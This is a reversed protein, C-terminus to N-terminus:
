CSVFMKPNVIADLSESRQTEFSTKRLSSPFRWGYMPFRWGYMARDPNFYFYLAIRARDGANWKQKDNFTDWMGFLGAIYETLQIQRSLANHPNNRVLDIHDLITDVQRDTLCYTTDGIMQYFGHLWHLFDNNTM